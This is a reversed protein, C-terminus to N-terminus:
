LIGCENSSTRIKHHLRCNGLSFVAQSLEAFTVQTRVFLLAQCNIISSLSNETTAFELALLAAM